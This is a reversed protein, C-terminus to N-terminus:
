QFEGAGNEPRETLRVSRQRLWQLPDQPATKHRVAFYLAPEGLASSDGVRAVVQQDRVVDGVHVLIASTHGYLTVVHNGHDVLVLRGLGKFWGAYVVKGDAAARVEQGFPAGIYMGQQFTVVDLTPHRVQGYSSLVTGDVPWSLQGKVAVQRPTPRRAQEQLREVLRALANAAQAFEDVATKTLTKEERVSRLLAVQRQRERALAEQKDRLRAYTVRIHQAATALKSQAETLQGRRIYYAEIQQRDHDALHQIYQVKRSFEAVDKASLLLKVYPLQGLKYLQRVRQRLRRRQQDLQHSLHDYAARLTDAQEQARQLEQAATHVEQALIAQRRSITDLRDLVSQEKHRHRQLQQQSKQLQGQLHDLERKKEEVVSLRSADQSALAAAPLGGWFMAFLLISIPLWEM